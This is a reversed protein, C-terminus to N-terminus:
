INKGNMFMYGEITTYVTIIENNIEDINETKNNYILEYIRNSTDKNSYNYKLNLYESYTLPTIPIRLLRIASDANYSLELTSSGTYIMFINKSNDFIIKGSLSWEQDYQSEDILLFVPENRTEILSNFFIRLYASIGDM